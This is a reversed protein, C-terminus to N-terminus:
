KVHKYFYKFYQKTIYNEYFTELIKNISRRLYIFKDLIYNKLLEISIDISIGIFYM